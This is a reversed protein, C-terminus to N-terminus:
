FAFLCTSLTSVQGNLHNYLCVSVDLFGYISPPSDVECNKHRRERAVYPFMCPLRRKYVIISFKGIQCMKQHVTARLIYAMQLSRITPLKCIARKKIRMKVIAHCNSLLLYRALFNKCHALFEKQLIRVAGWFCIEHWCLLAKPGM